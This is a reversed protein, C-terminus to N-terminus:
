RNRFKHGVMTQCRPLRTVFSSDVQGSQSLMQMSPSQDSTIHLSDGNYM